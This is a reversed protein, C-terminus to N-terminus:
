QTNPSVSKAERYFGWLTLRLDPLHCQEAVQFGYHQYLTVNEPTVTETYCPLGRGVAEALFPRILRSAWGQGQAEPRIGITQLYLHPGPAYTKRMQEFRTFVGRVRWGALIFPSFALRLFPAFDLPSLAPTHGPIEWVAVGALPSGLGYARQQRIALNVVARFFVALAQQRQRENSYVLQWLPDRQFARALTEAADPCEAPALLRLEDDIPQM